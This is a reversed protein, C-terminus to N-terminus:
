TSSNPDPETSIERWAARAADMVKRVPVKGKAAAKRCDEYEPAASVVEGGRTGVKVRVAGFPTKVKVWERECKSREVRHKRLGLTGTEGFFAEEVAALRGEDALARLVVGSRGKKMGAPETWADLAGAELLAEVARATVQPALDDLNAAVEWVPPEAAPDPTRGVTVRLCNPVEGGDRTGAGYGVREPYFEGPPRPTSLAALIAAGTPTVLEGRGEELRLDFGLLLQLTGPAPVPVRGHAIRVMGSGCRVPGCFLDRIGLADLAAAAAVVDAVADLAGVEHFRVSSPDAGHVRAEAAALHDFILLGRDRVPKSIRTKELLKRIDALTRHGHDESHHHDHAHDHGPGHDHDHGHDHSRPGEHEQETSSAAETEGHVKVTFKTCALAGRMVKEAGVEIGEAPIGAVAERVAEFSAGADLLAGVFM